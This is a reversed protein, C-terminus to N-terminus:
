SRVMGLVSCYVVCEMDWMQVTSKKNPSVCMLCHNIIQGPHAHNAIYTIGMLFAINCRQEFYRLETIVHM